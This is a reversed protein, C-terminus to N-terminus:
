KAVEEALEEIMEILDEPTYNSDMLLRRVDERFDGVVKAEGEITLPM